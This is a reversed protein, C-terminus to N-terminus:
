VKHYSVQFDGKYFQGNECRTMGIRELFERTIKKKNM